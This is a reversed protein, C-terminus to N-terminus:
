KKKKSKMEELEARLTRAKDIIKIIQNSTPIDLKSNGQGDDLCSSLTLMTQMQRLSRLDFHRSIIPDMSHQVYHLKMARWPISPTDAGERRAPDAVDREYVQAADRCVADDSAKGLNERLFEDVPNMSAALICPLCNTGNYRGLGLSSTQPMASSCASESVDDDAEEDAAEMHDRSGGARAPRPVTAVEGFAAEDVLNDLQDQRLGQPQKGHETKKSRKKKQGGETDEEMVSEAGDELEYYRLDLETQSVPRRAAPDASPGIKAGVLVKEGRARKFVPNESLSAASMSVGQTQPPASSSPSVPAGPGDDVVM